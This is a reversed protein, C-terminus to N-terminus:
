PKRASLRGAWSDGALEGQCFLVSLSFSHVELSKRALMGVLGLSGRWRLMWDDTNKLVLRDNGHASTIFILATVVRFALLLGHCVRRCDHTATGVFVAALSWRRFM